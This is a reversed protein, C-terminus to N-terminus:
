LIHKAISELKKGFDTRILEEPNGIANELTYDFHISGLYPIKESEMKEKVFMSDILKMNEIVGVLPVNIERLLKILRMVTELAVKSPTTVVLFEGKKLYRIADLVEDGVGPPMDVILFDLEDWRTITLIEIIANSVEGGRLPIPNDRAYYVISMFSVNSLKPPVVGKDEVPYEDKLGLIIHSSPGYIDLDLLGVCYGKQALILSLTSAVMSKGVGGKGSAVTIIRKIKSLRKDIIALRPDVMNSM